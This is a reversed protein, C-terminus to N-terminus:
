LHIRTEAGIWNSPRSRIGGGISSYDADSGSWETDAARLREAGKPKGTLLIAIGSLVLVVGVVAFADSFGMVLEQRKVANGLAIIAQQHATATDSVGHPRKVGPLSAEPAADALRPFQQLWVLSSWEEIV